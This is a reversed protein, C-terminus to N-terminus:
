SSCTSLCCCWVAAIALRLLLLLAGVVIEYQFRHAMTENELNTTEGHRMSPNSMKAELLPSIPGDESCGMSQNTQIRSDHMGGAWFWTVISCTSFLICCALSIAVNKNLTYTVAMIGPVIMTLRASSLSPRMVLHCLMLPCITGRQVFLNLISNQHYFDM